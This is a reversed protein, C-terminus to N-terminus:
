KQSICHEATQGACHVHKWNIFIYIAYKPMKCACRLANIYTTEETRCLVSRCRAYQLITSRECTASQKGKKKKPAFHLSNWNEAPVKNTKTKIWLMTTKNISVHKIVVAFMEIEVVVRKEKESTARWFCFDNCFLVNAHFEYAGNKHFGMRLYMITGNNQGYVWLHHTHQVISLSCM